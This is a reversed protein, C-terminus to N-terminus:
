RLRPGGDVIYQTARSVILILRLALLLAHQLCDSDQGPYVRDMSSDAISHDLRDVVGYGKGRNVRGPDNNWVM